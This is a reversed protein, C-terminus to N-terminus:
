QTSGPPAAPAPGAASGSGGASGADFAYVTGDEAGVVVAGAAIAPSASVPAGADFTWVRAGDALRVVHLRGDMSGVVVKDGCVV